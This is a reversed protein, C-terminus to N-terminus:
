LGKMNNKIKKLKIFVKYSYSNYKLLKHYHNNKSLFIFIYYM